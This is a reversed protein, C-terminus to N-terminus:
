NKDDKKTAKAPADPAPPGECDDATHMPKVAAPPPLPPPPPALSSQLVPVPCCAAPASPTREESVGAQAKIMKVVNEDVIGDGEYRVILHFLHKPPRVPPPVSYSVSSDPAAAAPTSASERYEAPAVGHRPDPASAAVSKKLDKLFADVKAQVAATHYIVLIKKPAYYHLTKGPDADRHANWSGPEIVEPITEAIWKCLEPDDGLDSLSYIVCTQEGHAPLDASRVTRAALVSLALALAALGVLRFRSM